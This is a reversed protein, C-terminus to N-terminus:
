PRHVCLSLLPPCMGCAPDIVTTVRVTSTYISCQLLIQSQKNPGENHGTEGQGAGLFYKQSHYSIPAFVPALFFGETLHEDELTGLWPQGPVSALFWPPSHYMQMSDGPRPVLPAMSYQSYFGPPYGLPAYGPLSGTQPHVTNLVPM